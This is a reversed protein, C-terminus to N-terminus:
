VNKLIIKLSKGKIERGRASAYRLNEKEKKNQALVFFYAMCFQLVLILFFIWPSFIELNSIKFSLAHDVLVVNKQSKQMSENM